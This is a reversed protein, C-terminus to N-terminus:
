LMRYPKAYLVKICIVCFQYKVSGQPVGADIREWGSSFGDLVVKQKKDDLYHAVWNLLNGDIGIKHLKYLLGTNRPFFNASTNDSSFIRFSVFFWLGGGGKL